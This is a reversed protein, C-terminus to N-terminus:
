LVCKFREMIEKPVEVKKDQGRDHISVRLVGDDVLHKRLITAEFSRRMQKNVASLNLMTQLCQKRDDLWQEAEKKTTKINPPTNELRDFDQGLVDLVDKLIEVPLRPGGLISSM